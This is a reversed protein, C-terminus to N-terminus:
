ATIKFKRTAPSADANGDVDTAFVFFKYKGRDLDRYKRPSTCPTFQKIAADLGRGKLMCQFSSGAMSSTFRFKATPNDTKKEPGKTITTEPLPKVPCPLAQVATDAPCADQTEDGFGDNDADAELTAALDLQGAGTVYNATSGVPPDGLVAALTNTTGNLGCHGVTDVRFGIVDGARAPLRIPFSSITSATPTALDSEGVITYNNGGAPRALKFKLTPPSPSAQFSWSTIVGDSPV